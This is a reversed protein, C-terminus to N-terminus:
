RSEQAMGAQESTPEPNPKRVVITSPTTDHGNRGRANDQDVGSLIAPLM